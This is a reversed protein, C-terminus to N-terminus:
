VLIVPSPWVGMDCIPEGVPPGVGFASPQDVPPPQDIARRQGYNTRQGGHCTAPRSNRSGTGSGSAAGGGRRIFRDM